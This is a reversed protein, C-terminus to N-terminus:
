HGAPVRVAIGQVVHASGLKRESGDIRVSIEFLAADFRTSSSVRDQSERVPFGRWVVPDQRTIRYDLAVGDQTHTQLPTALRHFDCTDDGIQPPCNSQGSDSELLFNARDLSLETAIARAQHFAEEVFQDNGAMQAQLISTRMVTATILALLLMFVLALMLVAGRDSVATVRHWRVAGSRM